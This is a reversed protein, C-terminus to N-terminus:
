AIHNRAPSSPSTTILDTLGQRPPWVIILQLESCRGIWYGMDQSLCGRYMLVASTSQKELRVPAQKVMTSAPYIPSKHHLHKREEPHTCVWMVLVLGQCSAQLRPNGGSALSMWRSCVQIAFIYMKSDENNKYHIRQEFMGEGLKRIGM